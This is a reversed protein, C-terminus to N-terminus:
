KHPGRAGTSTKEAALSGAATTQVSFFETRRLRRGRGENKKGGWCGQETEERERQRAGRSTSGGFDLPGRRPKGKKNMTTVKTM